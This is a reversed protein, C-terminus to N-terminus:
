RAQVTPDPGQKEWDELTSKIHAKEEESLSERVEKM